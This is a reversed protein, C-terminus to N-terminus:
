RYALVGLSSPHGQAPSAPASEGAARKEQSRKGRSSMCYSECVPIFLKFCFAHRKKKKIKVCIRNERFVPLGFLSPDKRAEANSILYQSGRFYLSCMGQIDRANEWTTLMCGMLRGGEM